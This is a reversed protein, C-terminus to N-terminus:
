FISPWHIMDIYVKEVDCFSSNPFFSFTYIMLLFATYVTWPLSDDSTQLMNSISFMNNIVRRMMM